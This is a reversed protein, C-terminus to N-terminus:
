HTTREDTLYLLYDSSVKYYQVLKILIKIPIDHYCTEYHSYGNRSMNLIKAIDEQKLDKNERIEKLRNMDSNISIINSKKYAKENNTLGLIYDVSTNYFLALNKLIHTPINTIGTEYQSYGNQSMNLHKAIDKQYLNKKIRLEKLRNM